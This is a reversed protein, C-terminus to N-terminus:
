RQMYLFQTAKLEDWLWSPRLLRTARRLKEIRETYPQEWAYLKIAKIGTVVESCAKVRQDTIGILKKRIPLLIRGVSTSLPVLVLTAGLAVASPILGM